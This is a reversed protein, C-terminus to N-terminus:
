FRYRIGLGVATSGSNRAKYLGFVGSRHHVRLALEWKPHSPLAFTAEFMLYNLLNRTEGDRTNDAEITPVRTAYSLGEGIAFSTALYHNWPFNAWRVSFYPNFEYIAGQPDNDYTINANLEIFSIWFFRQSFHAVPNNQALRWSLEGSYLTENTFNGPNFELVKLLTNDTMRGVYGLVAWRLEDTTQTAVASSTAAYCPPTALANTTAFCFPSLFLSFFLVTLVRYKM